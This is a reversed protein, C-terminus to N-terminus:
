RGHADYQDVIERLSHGSVTPAEAARDTRESRHAQDAPVRM